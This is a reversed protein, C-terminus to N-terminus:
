VDDMTKLKHLLANAMRHKEADSIKHFKEIRSNMNVILHDIKSDESIKKRMITVLTSQHEKIYEEIKEDAKVPIHGQHPNARTAPKQTQAATAFPQAQSTTAFNPHPQFGTHRTDHSVKQKKRKPGGHKIGLDKIADRFVQSVKERSVQDTALSYLYHKPNTPDKHRSLIRRGGEQFTGVVQKTLNTKATKGAHAYEQALDKVLERLYRNGPKDNNKGGRGM